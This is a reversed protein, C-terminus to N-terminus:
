VNSIEYLSIQLSCICFLRQSITTKLINAVASCMTIGRESSSGIGCTYLYIYIHMCMGLGELEYNMHPKKQYEPNALFFVYIDTYVDQLLYRIALDSPGPMSYVYM